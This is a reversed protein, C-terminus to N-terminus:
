DYEEYKSTMDIADPCLEAAKGGEIVHCSWGATRPHGVRIFLFGEKELAWVPVNFESFVDPPPFTDNPWCFIPMQNHDRKSMRCYGSRNFGKPMGLAITGAGNFITTGLVHSQCGHGVKKDPFYTVEEYKGCNTDMGGVCGSCIFEAIMEEKTM